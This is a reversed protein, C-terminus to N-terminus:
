NSPLTVTWTGNGHVCCRTTNGSSDCAKGPTLCPVTGQNDVDRWIYIDGSEKDDAHNNAFTTRAITVNTAFPQQQNESNAM